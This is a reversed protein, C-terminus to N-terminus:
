IENNGLIVYDKYGLHIVTRRDQPLNGSDGTLNLCAFLGFVAVHVHM